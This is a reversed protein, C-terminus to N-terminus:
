SRAESSWDGWWYFCLGYHSGWAQESSHLLIDLVCFIIFSPSHRKGDGQTEVRAQIGSNWAKGGTHVVAPTLACSPSESSTNQVERSLPIVVTGLTPERRVRSGAEKERTRDQKWSLSTQVVTDKLELMGYKKKKEPFSEGQALTQQWDEEKKEKGGWLGLVYNYIRTTLWELEEM